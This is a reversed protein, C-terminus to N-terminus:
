QQIYAVVKINLNNCNSIQINAPETYNIEYAMVVVHIDDFTCKYWNKKNTKMYYSNTHSHV